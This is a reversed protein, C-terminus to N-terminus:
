FFGSKLVNCPFFAPAFWCFHLSFWGSRQFWFSALEGVGSPEGLTMGRAAWRTANATVGLLTHVDKPTTGIVELLKYVDKPTRHPPTPNQPAPVSCM